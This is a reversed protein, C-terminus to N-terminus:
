ANLRVDDADGHCHSARLQDVMTGPLKEENSGHRHEERVAHVPSMDIAKGFFFTSTFNDGREIVAHANEVILPTDRQPTVRRFANQLTGAFSRNAPRERGRNPRELLGFQRFDDTFRVARLGRFCNPVKGEAKFIWARDLDSDNRHRAADGHQPLVDGHTRLGLAYELSVFFAESESCFARVISQPFPVKARL